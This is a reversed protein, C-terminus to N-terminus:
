LDYRLAEIPDLKSAKWAPYFGFAIGVTASVLVAAGVALWSTEAPWDLFTRGGTAVLIKDSRWLLQNDAWRLWENPVVGYALLMLGFVYTGGLLAEGWTVPTGPPRRNGFWFCIGVGVVLILISAIFAVM